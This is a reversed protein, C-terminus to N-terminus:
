KLFESHPLQTTKMLFLDVSRAAERGEAIAWVVLSQGRTMDGAVFVGEVSTMKNEDCAVNGRADLDVGLEQVMGEHIPHVFGMALLVLDVDIEFESGPVENMQPRGTKPDPDSFSIKIGHIKTVKGNKGTFKKTSVCYETIKDKGERENAEEHSSSVRFTKPWQPWPNDDNRNRPPEPLLEFQVM